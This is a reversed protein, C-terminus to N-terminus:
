FYYIAALGGWPNWGEHQSKPSAGDSFLYLADLEGKMQWNENIDLLAGARIGAAETTHQEQSDADAATAGSGFGGLFPRAYGLRFPSLRVGGWAGVVGPTALVGADFGVMDFVEADAEFGYLLSPGVVAMGVGFRNGLDSTWAAANGNGGEYRHVIPEARACRVQLSDVGRFSRRGEKTDIHIMAGDERVDALRAEVPEFCQAAEDASLDSDALCTDSQVVIVPECGTTLTVTGVDSDVTSSGTARYEAAMRRLEAPQVKMNRACGALSIM